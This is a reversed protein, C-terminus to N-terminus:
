LKSPADVSPRVSSTVDCRGPGRGGLLLGKAENIKTAVYDSGGADPHNAVMVKRHAALV